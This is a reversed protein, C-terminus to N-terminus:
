IDVAISATAVAGSDSQEFKLHLFKSILAAKFDMDRMKQWACAFPVFHFVSQEAVDAAIPPSL